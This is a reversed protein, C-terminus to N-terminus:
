SGPRSTQRLAARAQPGVQGDSGEVRGELTLWLPGRTVQWGTLRSQRALEELEEPTYAADRSGLPEHARRLAQPVVYRTAFALLLYAPAPMDRRLDLVVLSGGPRLVRAIEDLAAVPQVWHHLSLSSVVLDLSGDPFPIAEADGLRFSVQGELGRRRAGAEARALMEASLDVGTLRLGPAQQALLFVLDGPGCGLDVAEGEQQLALARRAVWWRLLWFQPLRSMRQFGAAVAPDDLGEFGPRRELPRQRYVRWGDALLVGAFLGAGLGILTRVRM